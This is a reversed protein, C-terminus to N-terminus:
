DGCRVKMSRGRGRHRRSNENIELRKMAARIRLLSNKTAADRQWRRFDGRQEIAIEVDVEVRRHIGAAFNAALKRRHYHGSGEVTRILPGRRVSRGSSRETKDAEDSFFNGDPQVVAVESAIDVVGVIM